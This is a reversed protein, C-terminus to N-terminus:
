RYFWAKLRWIYPVERNILSGVIRENKQFIMDANSVLDTKTHSLFVFDM